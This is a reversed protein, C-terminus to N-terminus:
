WPKYWPKRAPPASPLLAPDVPFPVTKTGEVFGYVGLTVGKDVALVQGAHHVVIATAMAAAMAGDALSLRQDRCYGLFAPALRAHSQEFSLLSHSSSMYAEDLRNRDVRHGLSELTEFMADMLKPGEENAKDSFVPTGPTLAADLGFTRFLMSGAIRATSLILTEAHLRGDETLLQQAQQNFAGAAAIVADNASSM